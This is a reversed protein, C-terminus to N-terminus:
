PLAEQMLVEAPFRISVCTGGGDRPAVSFIAGMLKAREEIGKLGLAGARVHTPDYGVGDDEIRVELGEAVLSGQVEVQSAQAHRIVNTCAEQVIRFLQNKQQANLRSKEPFQLDFAIELPDFTSKLYHELAARVGFDDLLPPRLEAAIRRSIKVGSDIAGMMAQHQDDALSGPKLTRVIMKLGTFIQGIQDHVERSLRKREKDILAETELAFDKIRESASSLEQTRAAVRQELTENAQQLQHLTAYRRRREYLWISISLLVLAGVAIQALWQLQRTKQEQAGMAQNIRLTEAELQSELNGLLFRLKDMVLKGSEFLATDKMVEPGRQRRLEIGNAASALRQSSFHALDAWSFSAMGVQELGSKLANTLAPIKPLANRYPELFSEEGTIAFGRQGTEIDKFASLLQILDDRQLQIAQRRDTLAGINSLADQSALTSLGGIVLAVALAVASPWISSASRLTMGPDVAAAPAAGRLLFGLWSAGIGGLALTAIGFIALFQLAQNLPQAFADAPAALVVHLNWDPIPALVAKTAIGEKSVGDFVELRKNALAEMVAATAPQGVYREPTRSRAQLLGTRSLIAATWDAPLHQAALLANLSSNRFIARLCYVVKGDRLVPVGVSTIVTKKDIPSLFPESVMPKGTEFVMRIADKDGALFAKEGFPLLTLFQVQGDPTVLSVASIDPMGEVVRKAQSYLAQLDNQAAADSSALAKLAGASVSLREAVANATAQSRDILQARLDQQKDQTLQVISYGAFLLFPLVSLTAAVLLRYSKRNPGPILSDGPM